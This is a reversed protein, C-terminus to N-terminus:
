ETWKLSEQTVKRMLDAVLKGDHRVSIFAESAVVQGVLDDVQAATYFDERRRGSKEGKELAALMQVAHINKCELLKWISLRRRDIEPYTSINTMIMAWSDYVYGYHRIKRSLKGAEEKDLGAHNCLYDFPRKYALNRDIAIRFLKAVAVSTMMESWAFDLDDERRRVTRRFRALAEDIQLEGQRTFVEEMRPIDRRVAMTAANFNDWANGAAM